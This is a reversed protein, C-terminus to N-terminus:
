NNIIDDKTAPTVRIAQGGNVLMKASIITSSDVIYKLLKVQKPQEDAYIHAVYKKGKKLFSLPISLERSNEDTLTGIFWDSGNRRAITVYDGIQDHIVKTDDWVTPLHEWFEIEPEGQYDDPRNYWFLFQLPSYFVVSAALQHARTMQLQEEYYIFTYDGAGAVFRTFPLTTNHEATPFHENGRIGEQTLLNPYTRSFGTPRYNDHIDVVFKYQAAKILAKHVYNIGEQTRGDVFGFKLGKIGWSAYLPLIEELQQTLAAWNVYVIIDIGKERAYATVYEMDINEIVKTADSAPNHEQQYGLGYWGADFELYQLNHEKAFDILKIAGQTSLTTERMVKGPKVWSVSKLKNPENLNLILYNQEILDGAKDGIMVVRWPTEFPASATVSDFLSACLILSDDQVLSLQMRAYDDLAAETICLFFGAEHEITM